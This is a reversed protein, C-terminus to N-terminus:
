AAGGQEDLVERFLRPTARSPGAQLAQDRTEWATSGTVGPARHDAPYDNIWVERAKPAIRYKTQSWDWEPKSLNWWGQRDQRDQCQVQEGDAARRMVEAAERLEAPTM